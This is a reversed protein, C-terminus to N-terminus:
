SGPLFPLPGERFSPGFSIVLEPCKLRIQTEASGVCEAGVEHSVWICLIVGTGSCSPLPHQCSEPATWNRNLNQNQRKKFKTDKPLDSGKRSEARAM